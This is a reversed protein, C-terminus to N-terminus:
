RAMRTRWWAKCMYSCAQTATSAGMRPHGWSGFTTDWPPLHCWAGGRRQRWMTNCHYIGERSSARWYIQRCLGQLGKEVAVSITSSPCREVRWLAELGTRGKWDHKCHAPPGCSTLACYTRMYLEKFDTDFSFPWLPFSASHFPLALHKRNAKQKWLHSSEWMCSRWCSGNWKASRGIGQPKSGGLM